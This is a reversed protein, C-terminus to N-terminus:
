TNKERRLRDQLDKLLYLPENEEVLPGYGNQRAGDLARRIFEERAVQFDRTRRLEYIDNREMFYIKYEGDDYMRLGVTDSVFIGPVTEAVYFGNGHVLGLAELYHVIELLHSRDVTM